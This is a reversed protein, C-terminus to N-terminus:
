LSCISAYVEGVGIRQTGLERGQFGTNGAEETDKWSISQVIYLGIHTHMKRREGGWRGGEREEKKLVFTVTILYM